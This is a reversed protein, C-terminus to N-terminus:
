AVERLVEAPTARGVRRQAYGIALLAIVAVAAATAALVPYPVAVVTGPPLTTNIEFEDSLVAVIGFALATGGLLGAGLPASLEVALAARHSGPRFRMRRLLAYGRRHAPARSELYLLLGVATILATLLSLAALYDFTYTVAEFVTDGYLDRAVVVRSVPLNAAALKKRIQVADGHIWLQPTGRELLEGATERSVLMTPYSGQSSMLADVATLRIAPYERGVYTVKQEGTKLPRAGVAGGDRVITMAEDADVGVPRDDWASDRTFTKPDIVLIDTQIGGVLVSSVRTVETTSGALSSPVAAPEALTVVVDAGVMFGAEAQLTARVSGNVTAGYAAFAIPVATAAALMAAIAAERSLRRGALFVAPRRSGPRMSRRRLWRAGLRGGFGALGIIVLIPVILLRGPVQAVAGFGDSRAETSDDLLFWAGAGAAVLGLEWPVAFLRRRRHRTVVDTLWRSRMGAAVAVVALAAVLAAGAALMSRPRADDTFVPAPGVARVLLFASWWGAVAGVVLAPMAELLAKLGLPAPGVGHAALVTLERRRRQVWFLAAAAVVLLGVSVGASTIALVPPTLSRRVLDTRPVYKPMYGIFTLGTNTKPDKQLEQRMHGVGRALGAAKQVDIKPDALAFDADHRMQPASVDIPGALFTAEDLLVLPAIPRNTFEQGPDGEYLARHACWYPDFPTKRLDTYIAAVTVDANRPPSPPGGFSPVSYGVVTMTDGVKLNNQTAFRDPLWAGPGTGGSMLRVHDAFGDRTMYNVPGLDKGAAAGGTTMWISHVPATLGPPALTALKEKRYRVLDQTSRPAERTVAASPIALQATVHAGSSWQCSQSIQNTLAANRASSLFLPAAAAPLAAVFAAALLAFAVGPRTLLLLPARLWPAM